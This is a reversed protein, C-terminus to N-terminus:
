NKDSKDDVDVEVKEEETEELDEDSISIGLIEDELGHEKLRDHIKKLHKAYNLEM